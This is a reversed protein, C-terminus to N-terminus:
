AARRPPHELAQTLSATTAADLEFTLHLTDDETVRVIFALKLGIGDADLTGRTGTPLAPGGRVAAGTESLDIIRATHTGRGAVTLRCALDASHRVAQRRDVDTTATRVVRIVAHQLENVETNLAATNEHVRATDRGTRQAEMSVENIRKTMEHAAAATEAV